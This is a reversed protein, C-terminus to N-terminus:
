GHPIGGAVDYIAKMMSYGLPLEYVGPKNVHGSICVLRTGGNKPTGLAAFAAGGDRIFVPVASYTEVNNLLTPFGWAGAVAPYPPKVRPIGSKGDLSDLLATEEGCEYAGAGSHTYLDFDFGTGAINKGLYGKSYAEARAREMHEILYRYEGRIYLYGKHSDIALGAILIGEIMQHPDYEMLLRDKCTGPESEDANIVIYKPKPATRPVFSWKMGTPFGAGGRGRLSSAKVEDVVQAPTMERAKLFAKFGDNALYVDLSESNALGFNRSVVRTELPSPENFLKTM